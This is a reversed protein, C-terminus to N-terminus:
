AAALSRSTLRRCSLSHWQVCYRQWRSFGTSLFRIDVYWCILYSYVVFDSHFWSSIRCTMHRLRTSTICLLISKSREDNRCWDERCACCIICLVFRVWVVFEFAVTASVSSSLAEKVISPVIGICPLPNFIHPPTAAIEGRKMLLLLWM